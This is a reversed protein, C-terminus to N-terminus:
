PAGLAAMRSTQRSEDLIVPARVGGHRPGPASRWAGRLFGANVLADIGRDQPHYANPAGDADISMRNVVYFYATSNPIKFLQTGRYEQSAVADCSAAVAPSSRLTLLCLLVLHIRRM